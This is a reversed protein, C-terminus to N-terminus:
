SNPLLTTSEGPHGDLYGIFGHTGSADTFSGVIQNENNISLIRTSTANPFDLTSLKGHDSIFGHNDYDGVIV